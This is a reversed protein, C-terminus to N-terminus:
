WRYLSDIDQNETVVWILKIKANCKSGTKLEEAM